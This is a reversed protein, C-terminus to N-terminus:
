RKFYQKYLKKYAKTKLYDDLWCNLTDLLATSQKNIGWSYFQTFSIDTNIDLNPFDKISAQAINEECVAYDIDGAAVMALLHESGYREVEKVYITDAIEGILNSIRLLAPSNKILHITKHALDLQNKIFLSDKGKEKKRQVLIQKSLLITHTFNLTDKLQSTVATTAAMIDYKGELLGQLRKDFSAEPTFSVKLGKDKAFANLLEYDFGDITDEKVHLSIANYATVARLTESKVIEEYDRPTCTEVQEKKSFLLIATALILITAIINRIVKKAM